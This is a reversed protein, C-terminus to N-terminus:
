YFSINCAPFVVYVASLWGFLVSRSVSVIHVYISLFVFLSVFIYEYKPFYPLVVKSYDAVFAVPSSPNLGPKRAGLRM